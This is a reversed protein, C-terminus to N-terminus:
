EVRKEEQNVGMVGKVFIGFEYDSLMIYARLLMDVAAEKTVLEKYREREVLIKDEM